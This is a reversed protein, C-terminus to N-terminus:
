SLLSGAPPLLGQQIVYRVLGAVDHIELRKMLEARHTEVTKPSIKLVDAIEKTTQSAAILKLVELQRPSLGGAQPASSVVTRVSLEPSLYQEGKAVALLAERLENIKGSKLLYGAAGAQFAQSIYEGEDHMSLIIVRVEPLEKVAQRTATLGDMGKMSIDMLIIDPRHVKMLALAEGGDTAEAVVEVEPLKGLLSRFGARVLGHDDALLVRIRKM